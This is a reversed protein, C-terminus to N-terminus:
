YDDNYNIGNIENNNNENNEDENKEEVFLKSHFNIKCHPINKTLIRETIEKNSYDKKIENNKINKEVHERIERNTCDVLSKITNTTMIFCSDPRTIGNNMLYTNHSTLITQFNDMENLKKVLEASAEYHLFADFEDIFLFSIDM